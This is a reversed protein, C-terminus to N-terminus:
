SIDGNDRKAVDERADLYNRQFEHAAHIPAYVADHLNSYRFAKDKMYILMLKYVCYELEGKCTIPVDKLQDLIKDFSPRDQKAIYPMTHLLDQALIGSEGGRM